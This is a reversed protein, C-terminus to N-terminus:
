RVPVPRQRTVVWRRGIAPARGNADARINSAGRRSFGSRPWRECCAPAAIGAHAGSVRALDDCHLPREVLLDAIGLAAAVAIAQSIWSGVILHQLQAAPAARELTAFYTATM